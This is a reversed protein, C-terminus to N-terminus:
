SQAVTSSRCQPLRELRERKSFPFFQTLIRLGAWLFVQMYKFIAFYYKSEYTSCLLVEIGINIIEFVFIPFQFNSIESFTYM